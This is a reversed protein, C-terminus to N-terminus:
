VPLGERWNRQRELGRVDDRLGKLFDSEGRKQRAEIAFGEEGHELRRFPVFEDTTLDAHRRLAPGVGGAMTCRRTDMALKSHVEDLLEFRIWLAERDM